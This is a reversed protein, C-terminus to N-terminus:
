GLSKLLCPNAPLFRLLSILLCVWLQYLFFLLNGCPQLSMPMLDKRSLQYNQKLIFAMQQPSVQTPIHPAFCVFANLNRGHVFAALLSVIPDHINVGLLTQNLRRSTIGLARNGKELIQEVLTRIATNGQNLISGGVMSRLLDFGVQFQDILSKILAVSFNSANAKSLHAWTSGSQLM